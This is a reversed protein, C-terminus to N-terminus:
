RGGGQRQVRAESGLGKRLGEGESEKVAVVVQRGLTHGGGGGDAADRGVVAVVLVDGCGVAAERGKNGDGESVEM